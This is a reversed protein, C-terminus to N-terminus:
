KRGYGFHYYVYGAGLIAVLGVAMMVADEAPGTEPLEGAHQPEQAAQPGGGTRAIPGNSVLADTDTAPDTAAIENSPAPQATDDNTANEDTSVGAEGGEDATSEDGAEDNATEEERNEDTADDTANEDTAGDSDPTTEEADGGPAETVTGSNIEESTVLAARDASRRQSIVIGGVVLAALLVGVIVFSLISGSQQNNM